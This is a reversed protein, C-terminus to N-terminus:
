RPGEMGSRGSWRVFTTGIDEMTAAFIDCPEDSVWFLVSPFPAPNVNGIFTIRGHVFCMPFDRLARFWETDTRAALLLITADTRGDQMETIAKEVWRAAENYPPNCYVRGSWPRALGDDAKRYHRKAPVNPKGDNSCPDLDIEGGFTALIPALIEPPTYHEASVSSHHVAHKDHRAARVLDRSRPPEGVLKRTNIYAEFADEEVGALRQAAASLKKSVGLEELREFVPEESSGTKRPRGGRHKRTELLLEGLRREARVKIEAAWIELDRDLAKRAYVELGDAKNLIDKAQEARVAEALAKRAEEYRVIATM